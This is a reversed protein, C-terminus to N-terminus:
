FVPDDGFKGPSAAMSVVALLLSKRFLGM